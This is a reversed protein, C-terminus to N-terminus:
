APDFLFFSEFIETSFTSVYRIKTSVTWCVLKQDFIQFMFRVPRGPKDVVPKAFM